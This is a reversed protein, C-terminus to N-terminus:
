SREMSSGTWPNENVLGDLVGTSTGMSDGDLVGHPAGGRGFRWRSTCSTHCCGIGGGWADTPVVVISYTLLLSLVDSHAHM